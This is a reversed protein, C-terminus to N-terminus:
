DEILVARIPSGDAGKMKLPLAILTYEGAQIDKLRLGEIIIIDKSMLAKHTDHDPHDREIGLSDIGVGVVEKSKLFEAGSEELYIYNKQFEEIFSNKTKLLIFCGKPIEKNDFAEKTICDEIETLDIVQCKTILKNLDMHDITNGENYIHFPADMHTGTHLNIKISSENISSEPMKRDRFLLPRKEESNKYVAMEYSITMSIDHIKM